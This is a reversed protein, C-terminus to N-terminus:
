KVVVTGASIDGGAGVTFTYTTGTTGQVVVTGPQDTGGTLVKFTMQVNQQLSTGPLLIYSDSAISVGGACIATLQMVASNGTSGTFQYGQLTGCGAPKDGVRAKKQATRMMLQLQQGVSSVTQNDNFHLYSAIGTGFMIMLITVAVMLEILTFGPSRPAVLM